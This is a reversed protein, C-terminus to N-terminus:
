DSRVSSWSGTSRARRCPSAANPSRRSSTPPPSCGATRWSRACTGSITSSPPWRRIGGTLGRRVGAGTGKMFDDSVHTYIALSSDCEHGVQQQIFRRDVGDETLHTVYSHRTDASGTHPDSRTPISSTLRPAPTQRVPSTSHQM